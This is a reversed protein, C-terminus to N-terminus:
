KKIYGLKELFSDTLEGVENRVSPDGFFHGVGEFIKYEFDNGLEEMKDRYETFEVIRALHDRTGHFSISPPLGKKANHFTSISEANGNSQRKFFNSKTTNYTASHTIFANPIANIGNSDSIEIHELIATSAALHGGASFGAAVIKDPDIGLSVAEKRLWAIASKADEICNIINSGHIDILRYEFSVSVMGKGQYRKCNKYGWEPIGQAWGGGHFFAYVPTKDTKKHGEPKFIHAELQFDGVRKYIMITDAEARRTKSEAYMDLVQQKLEPNKSNREFDSIIEGLYNIGYNSISKKLHENMLYDKIEQHANLEKIAQYKPEIKQIGADYFNRFRLNEASMIDAYRDLFLVYNSQELLKPDDFSGETIADYYDQNIKITDGTYMEHVAPYVIKHFKTRFEIENIIKDHHLAGLENKEKFSNNISLYTSKLSDVISNYRSLTAGFLEKENNVVYNEIKEIENNMAHLHNNQAANSGSFVTEANLDLHISDGPFAIFEVKQQQHSISYLRPQGLLINVKFTGDNELSFISDRDDTYGSWSEALSVTGHRLNINNSWDVQVKGTIVTPQPEKDGSCSFFLIAFTFSLIVSLVKM